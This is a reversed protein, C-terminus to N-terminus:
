LGALFWEQTLVIVNTPTAQPTAQSRSQHGACFRRSSGSWNESSDTLCQQSEAPIMISCAASHAFVWRSCVSFTNLLSQIRGNRAWCQSLSVILGKVTMVDSSFSWYFHSIQFGQAKLDETTTKECQRTFPDEDFRMANFTSALLYVHHKVDM